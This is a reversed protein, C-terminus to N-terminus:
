SGVFRYSKLFGRFNFGVFIFYKVTHWHQWIQLLSLKQRNGFEQTRSRDVVMEGELKKEVMPESLM